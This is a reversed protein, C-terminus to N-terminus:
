VTSIACAPLFSIKEFSEIRFSKTQREKGINFTFLILIVNFVCLFLFLMIEIGFVKLDLVGGDEIM